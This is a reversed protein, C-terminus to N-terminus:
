FRGIQEVLNEVPISGEVGQNQFTMFNKYQGIKDLLEWYESVKVKNAIWTEEVTNYLPNIYACNVRGEFETLLVKQAILHDCHIMMNGSHTESKDDPNDCRFGCQYDLTYFPVDFHYNVVKDKGIWNHTPM